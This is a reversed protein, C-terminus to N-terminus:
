DYISIRREESSIKLEKRGRHHITVVNRSYFENQTKQAKQPWETKRGTTAPGSSPIKVVSLV